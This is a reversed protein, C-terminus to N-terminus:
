PSRTMERLEARASLPVTLLVGASAFSSPTLWTTVPETRRAPFASRTMACSTSALLSAGTQFPLYEPVTSSTKPIWSSIELRM